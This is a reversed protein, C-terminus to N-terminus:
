LFLVPILHLFVRLTSGWSVITVSRKIEENGRILEKCLDKFGRALDSIMM